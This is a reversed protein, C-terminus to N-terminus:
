LETAPLRPRHDPQHVEGAVEHHEGEGAGGHVRDAPTGQVQNLREKHREKHTQPETDHTDRRTETERHM